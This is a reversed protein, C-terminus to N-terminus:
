VESNMPLPTHESPNEPNYWYGHEMSFEWDEPIDYDIGWPDETSYWEGTIPDYQWGAGSPDIASFYASMVQIVTNVIEEALDTVPRYKEPAIVTVSDYAFNLNIISVITISPAQDCAIPPALDDLNDYIPCEPTETISSQIYVGKLQHGWQAIELYYKTVDSNRSNSLEDATIEEADDASIHEPAEGLNDEAFEEVEDIYTNYCTYFRNATDSKPLANMFSAMKEYDFEIEYLNNGSAPKRKGDASQPVEVAILFRNERYIKALEGGVDQKAADLMCNYFKRTAAVENDYDGSENIMDLIDPISIQWWEGDIIELLQYIAQWVLQEEITDPAEETEDFFQDITEILNGIRFYLVGDSMAVSGLDLEIDRKGDVKLDQSYNFKLDSNGAIGSRSGDLSLQAKRSEGSESSWDYNITGTITLDKQQLFQNVADFAINEPNNYFCFYWVAVGVGGLILVFLLILLAILGTRKKKPQMAPEVVSGNPLGTAIPDQTTNMWSPLAGTDAPTTVSPSTTAPVTEAPANSPVSSNPTAGMNSSSPANVSPQAPVNGANPDDGAAAGEPNTKPANEDGVPQGGQTPLNGGQMTPDQNM